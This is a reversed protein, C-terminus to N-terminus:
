DTGGGSIVTASTTGTTTLTDNGSGGIMSTSTGGSSVLTDNGTGGFLTVSSGGSSYLSSNGGGGVLASSIAGTATFIDNGSGGYVSIATGGSSALTDNGTGGFLTVSSGGSNYMSDNGSGGVLTSSTGGTSSLTDNGSGGYMSISTGGSSGLSDNGSGGFLTVSSGATGYLTDTGGGTGTVTYTGGGAMLTDNGSGGYMSVSTGGSAGLTDNGTGGFLTVSSGGSSYLSSNGNGGYITVTTGGASTLTDNGSGGYMSVGTGGSSGLTDNGTGGFLTVSSGGSSYLSSNGTGGVLMATTSGTSTLTDNGSGGYMSVSTGGSAGLTDNGTGGFLTVSSGGSTYLSANGGVLVTSTTGGSTVLSESGAGGYMSISTGGSNTLTDNGSGGFLTVSSGGSSYLSSNGSGGVLTATTAGTSTLTDNGSGGYMSLSTGSTSTLTDNGSGGYMSISTGGSTGLSDNGTGGFLQVNSAADAELQAAQGALSGSILAINSGGNAFLQDNGGGGYITSNPAAYLTDAGSSGMLNQFSGGLRLRDLSGDITQTGGSALNVNVPVSSNAFSLTNGTAGANVTMVPYAPPNPGTLTQSDTLVNFLNTNGTGGILSDGPSGYLTDNGSGGQLTNFGSDGQLVTNGASGVLSDHSGLAAEVVPTSLGNANVTANGLAVAVVQTSGAPVDATTLTTSGGCYSLIPTNATASGLDDDTVTLTVTYSFTPAETFNFNPSTSTQTAAIVTNGGGDVYSATWAYTLQEDAGPDPVTATLDVFLQNGILKTDPLVQVTPMPVVHAVTITQTTTATAGSSDTVASTVTYGGSELPTFSFAAGSATSTFGNPGAVTWSYALTDNAGGPDSSTASFALPAGEIPLNAGSIGSGNSTVTVTPAAPPQNGAQVVVSTTVSAQSDAVTVTVLYNGPTPPTFSFTPTGQGSTNTVADTASQDVVSWDYTYTQGALPNQVTATVSASGGELAGTSPALTLNIVPSVIHLDVSSSATQTADAAALTVTYLGATAPTFDFTAANTAAGSPLTYPQGNDTVSWTLTAADSTNATGASGTLSIATGQAINGTPAGGISVALPADTVAITVPTAVATTTGDSVSLAVVYSGEDDPTFNFTAQKTVVNSPLAFGADGAKTLSWTYSLTGSLSGSTITNALSILSGEPSTAPAGTIAAVPPAAVTLTTYSTTSPHQGGVTAGMDTATLAVTYLGAATPTFSFSGTNNPTGSSYAGGSVSWSLLTTGGDLAGPTGGSGSLNVATGTLLGAAPAGSITASLPAEGVSITVAPAVGSGGAGTVNLSVLYTGEDDPTFTFTAQTTPTGTSYANGDKTVTWAYTLNGSLSGSTIQNALSIPTGPVGTISAVPTNSTVLIADIATATHGAADTAALAISHNGAASPTFSFIPSTASAVLSGGSDTVSWAYSAITDGSPSLIAGELDIPTGVTGMGPVPGGSPATQIVLTPTPAPVDFTTTAQGAAGQSDTVTLTVTYIGTNIPDIQLTPQGGNPGLSLTSGTPTTVTWNYSLTAGGNADSVLSTLQITQGETATAPAGIGVTITPTPYDPGFESTNGNPDTATASFIPQQGGNATPTGDYAFFPSFTATGSADTLFLASGIDTRGQGYGSPDSAPNAYFDVTYITNPAGHLTATITTLPAGGSQVSTVVSTILPYDRYNNPGSHRLSDNVLPTGSGGLDIALKGNAYISNGRLSNATASGGTVHVGSLSNYAITNAQGAATGGVTNGAGGIAVGSQGNGLALGGSGVGIENGLVSNSNGALVIDNGLNGSIINATGAATGGITNVSGEVRVGDAANGLAKTGTADTGILKGAVTIQTTDVGAIWVGYGASGSIVNGEASTGGPAVGVVDGSASGIRIAASAHAAPM